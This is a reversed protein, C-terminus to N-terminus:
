FPSRIPPHAYFMKNPIGICFIKIQSSPSFSNQRELVSVGVSPTQKAKGGKKMRPLEIEKM